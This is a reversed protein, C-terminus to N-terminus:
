NAIGTLEALYEAAYAEKGGADWLGLRVADDTRLLSGTLIRENEQEAWRESAMEAATENSQRLLLQARVIARHKCYIDRQGAQCNCSMARGAFRVTYYGSTYKPNAVHAGWSELLTVELNEDVARQLAREYMEHQKQSIM